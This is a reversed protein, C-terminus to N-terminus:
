EHKQFAPVIDHRIIRMCTEEILQQKLGEGIGVFVKKSQMDVLLLLGRGNVGAGIKWKKMMADSYDRLDEQGTAEMVAVVLEIKASRLYEQLKEELRQQQEPLLVQAFDNVLHEPLPRNPVTIGARAAIMCGLLLLFLVSRKM